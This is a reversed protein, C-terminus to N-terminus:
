REGREGREDARESVIAGHGSGFLVVVEKTSQIVTIMVIDVVVAVSVDVGGVFACGTCVRMVGATEEASAANPHSIEHHPEQVEAVM